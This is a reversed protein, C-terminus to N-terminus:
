SSLVQRDSLCSHGDVKEEDASERGLLDLKLSLKSKYLNKTFWCVWFQKSGDQVLLGYLEPSLFRLILGLDAMKGTVKDEVKEVTKEDRGGRM